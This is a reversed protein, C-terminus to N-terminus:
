HERCGASSGRRRHFVAEEPNHAKKLSLQSFNRGTQVNFQRVRPAAIAASERADGVRTWRPTARARGGRRRGRAGERAERRTRQGTQVNFLRFACCVFSTAGSRCVRAWRPTARARGGRRRGRAGVEADGERARVKGLDDVLVFRSRSRSCSCSVLCACAWYRVRVRLCGFIAM